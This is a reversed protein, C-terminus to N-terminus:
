GNKVSELFTRPNTAQSVRLESDQGGSRICDDQPNSASSKYKDKM